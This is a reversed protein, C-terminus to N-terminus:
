GGAAWDGEWGRGLAGAPAETHKSAATGPTLACLPSPTFALPHKRPLSCHFPQRVRKFVQVRVPAAPWLSYRISCFSSYPPLPTFLGHQPVGEPLVSFMWRHIPLLLSGPPPFVPALGPLSLSPPAGQPRSSAGTNGGGAPPRAPGSLHSLSPLLWTPFPSALAPPARPAACFRRRTPLRSPMQPVPLLSLLLHPDGSHVTPQRSVRPHRSVDRPPRRNPPM